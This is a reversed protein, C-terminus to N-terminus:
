IRLTALQLEATSEEELAELDLYDQALANECFLRRHWQTMGHVRLAQRHTASGYGKNKEWDYHPFEKALEVMLRDRYVKAIISAAAISASTSDGQIVTSQLYKCDLEKVQKNGDVLVLVPLHDPVRNSLDDLARRMAM